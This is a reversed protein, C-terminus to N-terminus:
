IYSWCLVSFILRRAVSWAGADYRTSDSSCTSFPIHVITRIYPDLNDLRVSRWDKAALNERYLRRTADTHRARNLKEVEQLDQEEPLAAEESE